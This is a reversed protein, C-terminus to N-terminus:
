AAKERRKRSRGLRARFAERERPTPLSEPGWEKHLRRAADLRQQDELQNGLARAIYGSLSLGEAKAAKRALRLQVEDIAISIKTTPV